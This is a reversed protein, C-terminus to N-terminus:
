PKKDLKHEIWYEKVAHQTAEGYSIDEAEAIATIKSWLDDKVQKIASGQRRVTHGLPAINMTAGEDNPQLNQDGKMVSGQTKVMPM